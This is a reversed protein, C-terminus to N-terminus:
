KLFECCPDKQLICRKREAPAIFPDLPPRAQGPPPLSCVERQEKEKEGREKGAEAEQEEEGTESEDAALLALGTPTLLPLGGQYMRM